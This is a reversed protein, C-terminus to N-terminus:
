PTSNFDILEMTDTFEVGPIHSTGQSKIIGIHPVMWFTITYTGAQIKLASVEIRITADVRLANYTGFPVTVTEYGVATYDFVFQGNLSFDQTTAEGDATQQWTDGPKINAPLSIGSNSNLKVNVNTVLNNVLAGAYQQIPNVSTLGTSSCTYEVSYTVNSLTTQLTFTQDGSNTITDTRNYAGIATNSGSYDWTDGLTNPYYLNDCLPLVPTPTSVIAISNVTSSPTQNQAAQRNPLNCASFILTSIIIVFALSLLKNKM